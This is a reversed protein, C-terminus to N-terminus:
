IYLDDPDDIERVSGIEIDEFVPRQTTINGHESGKSDRSTMAEGIISALSYYGKLSSKRRANEINKSAGAELLVKSIDLRGLIAAIEIGTNNAGFDHDVNVRAVLQVAKYLQGSIISLLLPTELTEKVADPNLTYREMILSFLEIGAFWTAEYVVEKSVQPPNERNLITEATDYSDCHVALKLVSKLQSSDLSALHKMAINCLKQHFTTDSIRLSWEFIAELGDTFQDLLTELNSVFISRNEEQQPTTGFCSENLRGVLGLIEDPISKKEGDYKQFVERITEKTKKTGVRWPLYLKIADELVYCYLNPGAWVDTFLQEFKHLFTTANDGNYIYAKIETVMLGSESEENYRRVGVDLSHAFTSILELCTLWVKPAREFNENLLSNILELTESVNDIGFFPHHFTWNLDEDDGEAAPSGTFLSDWRSGPQKQAIASEILRALDALGEHQGTGSDEKLSHLLDKLDHTSLNNLIEVGIKKADAGYKLLIEVATIDKRIMTSALATQPYEHGKIIGGVPEDIGGTFVTRKVIEEMM